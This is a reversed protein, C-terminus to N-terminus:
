EDVIPMFRTLIQDRPHALGSFLVLLADHDHNFQALLRFQEQTLSRVILLYVQVLAVNQFHGSILRMYGRLLVHCYRNLILQTGEALSKYPLYNPM